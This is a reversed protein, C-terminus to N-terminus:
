NNNTLYAELKEFLHPHLSNFKGTKFQSLIAPNIGTKKAIYCQKERELTKCYLKRLEESTLNKGKKM